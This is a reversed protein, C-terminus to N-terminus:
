KKEGSLKFYLEVNKHIYLQQSPDSAYNMGWKTRDIEFQAEVSLQKGSVNICAPFRVSNTKGIMTFDGEIWYNASRIPSEAGGTCPQVSTITFSAEPYLAMNFFDASKLHHLLQGKLSDPLNFNKISVIPFVFSGGTLKGRKVIIHNESINFSGNNFGNDMTGKWEVVSGSNLKYQTGGPKDSKKCAAMLILAAWLGIAIAKKM